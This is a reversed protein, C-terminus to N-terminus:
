GNGNDSVDKRQLPQLGDSYLAAYAREIEDAFREDTIAVASPAYLKGLLEGLREPSVACTLVRVGYFRCKNLIKKQTNESAATCVLVLRAKASSVARCVLDAGIVVKGARMAFGLMGLFRNNENKSM